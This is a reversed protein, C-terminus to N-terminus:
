DVPLRSGVLEMHYRRWFDPDLPAIGRYEGLDGFFAELRGAPSVAFIIRGVGDGVHAWVHPVGRPAFASDGATLHFREDGVEIVYEGDVVYFWEDQGTHLHRPPGGRAHHVLECTLLSGSSDATAVKFSFVGISFDRHEGFRDESRPVRFGATKTTAM